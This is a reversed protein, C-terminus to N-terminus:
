MLTAVSLTSPTMAMRHVNEASFWFWIDRGGRVKSAPAEYFVQRWQSANKTARVENRLNFAAITQDGELKPPLTVITQEAPAGMRAMITTLKFM